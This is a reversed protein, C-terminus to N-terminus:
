TPCGVAEGPEGPEGGWAQAVRADVRVPARKVYRRMGAEMARVVWAAAAEAEAADCEVVLEDHVLLV